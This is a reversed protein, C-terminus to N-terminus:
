ERPGGDATAVHPPVPPFAHLLVVVPGQGVDEYETKGHAPVDHKM